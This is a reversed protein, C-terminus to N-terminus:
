SFISFMVCVNKKQQHILLIAHMYYKYSLNVNLSRYVYGVTYGPVRIYAVVKGSIYYCIYMYVIFFWILCLNYCYITLNSRQIHITNRIHIIYDLVNRYTSFCLAFLFQPVVVQIGSTIVDNDTLQQEPSLLYQIFHFYQMHVKLTDQRTLHTLTGEKKRVM